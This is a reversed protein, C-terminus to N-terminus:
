IYNAYHKEVFKPLWILLQLLLFTNNLFPYKVINNDNLHSLENTSEKLLRFAISITKEIRISSNHTKNTKHVNVTRQEIYKVCYELNPKDNYRADFFDDNLYPIPNNLSKLIAELLDRQVTVNKKRYDKNQYNILIDILLQEYKQDIIKKKFPIFVEPFDKKVQTEPKNAIANKIDELMQENDVGKTYYKGYSDEFISNKQYDPQGTFIFYPLVYDKNYEILFDRSAKLGKLDTTTDEKNLKVKADLIVADYFHNNANLKLMGEEHSEVADIIIDEQEALTIFAIQKKYEDDIWLINYKM